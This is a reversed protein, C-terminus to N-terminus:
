SRYAYERSLDIYIGMGFYRWADRHARAFPPANYLRALDRQERLDPWWERAHDAVKWEQYAAPQERM